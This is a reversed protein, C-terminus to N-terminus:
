FASEPPLHTDMSPSSEPPLHVDTSLSSEQPLHVDPSLSSEPPLCTDMSPSSEPPLHPDMSSSSEQPLHTDMSPSSEQPQHTNTSRTRSSLKMQPNPQIVQMTTGHFSRYQDGCYVSAHSQLMDFNDVSAVTFTDDQLHDWMSQKREEEAEQTVFRDHTDASATVGLRNLIHILQRSGGCTEVTDALLMHLATPCQLNTCYMLLCIINFRRVKKIHATSETESSSSKQQYAPRTISTVFEWLLPNIESILSDINLCKLDTEKDKGALRRVEELILNNIITATQKIVKPEGRHLKSTQLETQLPEFSNESSHTQCKSGLAWVLKTSSRWWKPVFHYWVEQPYM